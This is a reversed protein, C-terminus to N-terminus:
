QEINISNNTLQEGKDEDEKKYKYINLIVLIAVSLLLILIFISLILYPMSNERLEEMEYYFVKLDRRLFQCNMITIIDYGFTMSNSNGMIKNILNIINQSYELGKLIKEKLAILENYYNKTLGIFNPNDSLLKQNENKFNDLCKYYNEFEKDVNSLTKTKIQSYFNSAVDKDFEDLVMCYKNGEIRNKQDNIYKYQKYKECNQKISVWKDYSHKDSFTSQDTNLINSYDTLKNLNDFDNQCKNEITFIYNNYYSILSYDNLMNELENIIDETEDLKIKEFNKYNKTLFIDELFIRNLKILMSTDENIKGLIKSLLNGEEEERFCTELFVKGTGKFIVSDSSEFNEKSTGYQLVGSVDDGFIEFIKFIIQSIITLLLLFLIFNWLIHLIITFIKKVKLSIKNNRISLLTIIIGSFSFIISLIFISYILPFLINNAYHTYEILYQLYEEASSHVTELLENLKSNILLNEKTIMPLIEKNDKLEQNRNKFDENFKVGPELKNFYELYIQNIYDERKRSYKPFVKSLQSNPSPVDKDSYYQKNKENDAFTKTKYKNNSLENTIEEHLNIENILQNEIEKDGVLDRQLKRTGKWNTTGAQDGDRLDIYIRLISCIAGNFYTQSKHVIPFSISSLIIIFLFCLATIYALLHYKLNQTETQEFKFIKKNLCVLIILIIWIILLLVLLVIFIINPKIVRPTVYEDMIQESTFNKKLMEVLNIVYENIKDTESINNLTENDIYTNNFGSRCKSCIVQLEKEDFPSSDNVKNNDDKSNIISFLLLFLIIEKM